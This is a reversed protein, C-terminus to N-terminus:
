RPLFMVSSTAWQSANRWIVKKRCNAHWSCPRKRISIAFGLSSFHTFFGKTTLIAWIPTPPPLFVVLLVQKGKLFCVGFVGVRKKGQWSETEPSFFICSHAALHLSFLLASVSSAPKLRTTNTKWVSHQSVASPSRLPHLLTLSVSPNGGGSVRWGGEHMVMSMGLLPRIWDQSGEPGSRNGVGWFVLRHPSFSALRM